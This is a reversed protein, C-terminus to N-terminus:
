RLPERGESSGASVDDSMTRDHPAARQLGRMGAVRSRGLPVPAFGPLIGDALEDFRPRLPREQDKSVTPPSAPQTRQSRDRESGRHPTRETNRALAKACVREASSRGVRSDRRSGARHALTLPPAPRRSRPSRDDRSSARSPNPAARATCTWTRSDLTCLQACDARRAAGSKGQARRGRAARRFSSGASVAPDAGAARAWAM